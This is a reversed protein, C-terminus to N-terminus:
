RSPNACGPKDLAQNARSRDVSLNETFRDNMRHRNITRQFYSGDSGDYECALSIVALAGCTPTLALKQFVSKVSRMLINQAKIQLIQSIQTEFGQKQQDRRSRISRFHRPETPTGL